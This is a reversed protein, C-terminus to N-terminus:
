SRCPVGLPSALLLKIMGAQRGEQSCPTLLTMEGQGAAIPEVKWSEEVRGFLRLMGETGAAAPLTGM